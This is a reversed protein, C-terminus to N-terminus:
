KEEETDEDENPPCAAPTSVYLTYQCLSPETINIFKTQAGCLVNVTTTRSGIACATGNSYLAQAQYPSIATPGSMKNGLSYAMTTGNGVEQTQCIFANTCGGSNKASCLSVFLDYPGVGGNNIYVNQATIEPVDELNYNQGDVNYSCAPVSGCVANSRGTIEYQCTNPETISDVLFGFVKPDCSIHVQTSRANSPCVAGHTFSVTTVGNAVTTARTSASGCSLYQNLNDQQCVATGNACGSAAPVAECVSFIYNQGQDDSGKFVGSPLAHGESSMCSSSAAGM